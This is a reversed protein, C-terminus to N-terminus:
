KGREAIWAGEFTVINPHLLLCQCAIEGLAQKLQDTSYIPIKKLAHDSSLWRSQVKGVTGFRGSGIIEKVSYSKINKDIL